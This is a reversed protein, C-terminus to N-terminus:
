HKKRIFYKESSISTGEQIQIPIEVADGCWYCKTKCINNEFIIMGKTRLRIRNGAKQLVHNDCKPCRM